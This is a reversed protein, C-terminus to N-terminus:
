TTGENNTLISIVEICEVGVCIKLFHSMQAQCLFCFILCGEKCLSYVLLM